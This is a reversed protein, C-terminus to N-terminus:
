SFSANRSIQKYRLLRNGILISRVYYFYPLYQGVACM